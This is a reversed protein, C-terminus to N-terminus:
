KVLFMSLHELNCEKGTVRYTFFIRKTMRLSASDLALSFPVVRCGNSTNFQVTEEVNKPSKSLNAAM